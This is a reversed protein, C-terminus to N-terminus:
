NQKNTEELKKTPHLCSILNIAQFYNVAKCYLKQIKEEFNLFM